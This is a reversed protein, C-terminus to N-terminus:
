RAQFLQAKEWSKQTYTQISLAHIADGMSSGLTAYVLKHQKILPMGEFCDCIVRAIFHSGDGDVHVESDPLGRAIMEEIEKSEM